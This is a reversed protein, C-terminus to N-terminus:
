RRSRRSNGGLVAVIRRPKPVFAPVVVSDKLLRDLDEIRFLVRRVGPLQVTPLEDKALMREISRRKVGLYAAAGDIGVVAPQVQEVTLREQTMSGGKTM